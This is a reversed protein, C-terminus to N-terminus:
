GIGEVRFRNMLDAADDAERLREELPRQMNAAIQSVNIGYSAASSGQASERRRPRGRRRPARSYARSLWATFTCLYRSVDITIRISGDPSEAVVTREGPQISLAKGALEWAARLPSGATEHILRTLGLRRAEEESYRLNLGLGAAANQVWKTDANVALAFQALRMEM